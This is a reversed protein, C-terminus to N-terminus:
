LVAKLPSNENLQLSSFFLSLLNFEQQNSVTVPSLELDTVNEAESIATQRGGLEDVLGLEQAESGLFVEATGVEQEQSRTLNRADVVDNLFEDGILEAKEQLIEKEEETPEQYPSAVEKNEGVSVNVYNVGVEDMLESFELYSSTVGISGTMSASDAVISDCGLSFLYAGSAGVDRIRCVTPVSVDEITRRVDKSAVVAGGGSNIEYVIADVNRDEASQTLQRVSEPTMGASFGGASPTITGSLDILAVDGTQQSEFLDNLTVAAATSIMFTTIIFLTLKKMFM